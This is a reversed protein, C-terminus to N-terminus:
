DRYIGLGELSVTKGTASTATIKVTGGTRLSSFDVLTIVQKRATSSTHLSVSKITAGNWTVKVSGCAACKTAVLSLSEAWVGTRTAYKATTTTKKVFGGYAGAVTVKSWGSSYTLQDSRLPIATCRQGSFASTNGHGDTARVRFCYTYGSTGTATSSTATTGTRWAAWSGAGANWPLVRREVDFHDIGSPDTATWKVLFSSALTTKSTPATVAVGAPATTDLPPPDPIQITLFTQDATAASNNTSVRIQCNRFSPLGTGPDAQTPTLCNFIGQPSEGKFPTFRLNPNSASFTATGAADAITSAPSSV